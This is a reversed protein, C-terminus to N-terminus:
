VCCNAFNCVIGWVFLEVAAEVAGGGDQWQGAAASALAKPLCGSYM